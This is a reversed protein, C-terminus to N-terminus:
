LRGFILDQAYDSNAVTEDIIEQSEKIIERVCEFQYYYFRSSDFINFEHYIDLLVKKLEDVTEFGEREADEDNISKFAKYGVNTIKLLLEEGDPFIAIVSDGPSVELRKQPMRMTQTKVGEKIMTYYEQKFKLLKMM